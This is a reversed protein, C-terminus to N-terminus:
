EEGRKELATLLGGITSEGSQLAGLVSQMPSGLLHIIEAILEEKGKLNTLVEIQDDGIYIATDIYAAKLTPKESSERFQKLVKAPVNAKEAFLLASHGKLAEFIGMYAKEEPASELAKKILTNKVVKMEVGKEFCLRRFKNIQEVSLTSSDAIYFFDTQAFKEKLAEITATKEAKTM